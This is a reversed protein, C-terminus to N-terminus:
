DPNNLFGGFYKANEEWFNDIKYKGSILDKMRTGRKERFKM